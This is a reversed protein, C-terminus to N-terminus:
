AADSPHLPAESMSYSRAVRRLYPMSATNSRGPFRVEASDFWTWHDTKGRPRSCTIGLWCFVDEDPSDHATATDFGEEHLVMSYSKYRALVIEQTVHLPLTTPQGAARTSAVAVEYLAQPKAISKPLGRELLAERAEQHIVFTHTYESGSDAAPVAPAAAPVTKRVRPAKVAPAKRVRKSATRARMAAEDKQAKVRVRPAKTITPAATETTITPDTTTAM